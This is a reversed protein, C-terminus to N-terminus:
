RGRAGAGELLCELSRRALREFVRRLAVQRNAEGGRLDPASLYSEQEHLRCRSLLQQGELLEVQIGAEVVQQRARYRGGVLSVALPRASVDRLRVRLRPGRGSAAVELGARGAQRHLAETLWAGAAPESSLNVVQGIVLQRGGGPLVARGTVVRYGCGLALLVLLL